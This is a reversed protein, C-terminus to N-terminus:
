VAPQFDGAVLLETVFLVFIQSTHNATFYQRINRFSRCALCIEVGYKNALLLFRKFYRVDKMVRFLVSGKLALCLIHIMKYFGHM